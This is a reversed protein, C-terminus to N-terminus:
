EKGEARVQLLPSLRAARRRPVLCSRWRRRVRLGDRRFLAMASCYKEGRCAGISPLRSLKRAVMASNYKPDKRDGRRMPITPTPASLRLDFVPCNITSANLNSQTVFNYQRNEGSFLIGCTGDALLSAEIEFCTRKKLFINEGGHLM